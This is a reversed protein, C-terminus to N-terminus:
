DRDGEPAWFEHDLEGDGEHRAGFSLFELGDPGAEFRRTVTAGIRLVDRAGLEVIEDELKVRGSGGIVFYIEEAEEHRHGFGQRKGPKLVHHGFGTQKADVEGAGFRVEQIDEYGFDPASDKLESVNKKSYDTVGLLRGADGPM